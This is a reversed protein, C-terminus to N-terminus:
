DRLAAALAAAMSLAGAGIFAAAAVFTTNDEAYGFATDLRAVAVAGVVGAVGLGIVLAPVLAAKIGVARRDSDPVPRVGEAARVLALGSLTWAAAVCFGGLVDSPLHWGLLLVSYSVGLAFSGGLAAAAPRLRPPAVAILCLAVTMSATAHGSPWSQEAIHAGPASDVTRPEATIVKLVQTTVNAGAVVLCATVALRPRRRVLALFVIGVTFMAVPVPDGLHAGATALTRSSSGSLGVFGALTTEDVGAGVATRFALAWVLAAVAAFAAAFLLAGRSSRGM